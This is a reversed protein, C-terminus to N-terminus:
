RPIGAHAAALRELLPAYVETHEPEYTARVQLMNPVDRLAVHGLQTLALLAAGRANTHSPDALQHVSVGCADAV